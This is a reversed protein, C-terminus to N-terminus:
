GIYYYYFSRIYSILDQNLFINRVIIINSILYRFIFSIFSMNSSQIISMIPKSNNSISFFCSNNTLSFIFPVCLLAFLNIKRKKQYLKENKNEIHPQLNHVYKRLIYLFSTGKLRWSLNTKWLHKCYRLLCINQKRGGSHVNGLWFYDVWINYRCGYSVEIVNGFRCWVAGVWVYWKEMQTVSPSNYSTTRIRFMGCTTTSPKSRRRPLASIM